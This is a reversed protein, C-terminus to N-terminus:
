PFYQAKLFNQDVKIFFVHQKKKYKAINRAFESKSTICNMSTQGM